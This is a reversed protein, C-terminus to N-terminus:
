HNLILASVHCSVVGKTVTVSWKEAFDRQNCINQHSRGPVPLTQAKSSGRFNPTALSKSQGIFPSRFHQTGKRTSAKLAWPHRVRWKIQQKALRPFVHRSPAGDAQARTTILFVVGRMLGCQICPMLSFSSKTTESWQFKPTVGSQLM